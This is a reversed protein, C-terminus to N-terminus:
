ECNVEVEWHFVDKPYSKGLIVITPWCRESGLMLALIARNGQKELM